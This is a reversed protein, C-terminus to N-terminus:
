QNGTSTLVTRQKDNPMVRIVNCNHPNFGNALHTGMLFDLDKAYPSTM